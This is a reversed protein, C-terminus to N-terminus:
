RSSTPPQGTKRLRESRLQDLHELERAFGVLASREPEKHLLAMPAILRGALRFKM